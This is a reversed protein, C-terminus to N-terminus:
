AARTNADNGACAKEGVKKLATGECITGRFIRSPYTVSSKTSSGGSKVCSRKKSCTVDSNELVRGHGRADVDAGGSESTLKERIALKERITRERVLGSM